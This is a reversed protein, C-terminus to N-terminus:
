AWSMNSADAGNPGDASARHGGTRAFSAIAAEVRVFIMDEIGSAMLHKIM